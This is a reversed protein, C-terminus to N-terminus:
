RLCRSATRAEVDGNPVRLLDGDCSASLACFRFTASGPELGSAGVSAFRGFFSCAVSMPSAGGVVRRRGGGGFLM